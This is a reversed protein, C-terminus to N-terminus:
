CLSYVIKIELLLYLCRLMCCALVLCLVRLQYELHLCPSDKHHAKTELGGGISDIFLCEEIRTM